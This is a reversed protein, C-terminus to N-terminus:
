TPRSDEAPAPVAVGAEDADTTAFLAAYSESAHAQWNLADLVAHIRELAEKRRATREAMSNTKPDHLVELLERAMADLEDIRSHEM